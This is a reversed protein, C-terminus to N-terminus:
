FEANKCEPYNSCGLFKRTNKTKKDIYSREIMYGKNCKLCKMGDYNYDSTIKDLKTYFTKLYGKFDSIQGTAILDLDKEMNKTFDLNIVDIFNKVLFDNVKLGLDNVTMSESKNKEVDVYGRLVNIEIANKYTSPRGIELKQLQEILTIENLKSPPKDYDEVIKINNVNIFSNKSYNFKINEEVNLSEDIEYYGLVNYSKITTYFLNKRNELFIEKRIGSPKQYISNITNQWILWYLLKENKSLSETCYKEIEGPLWEFHTPTIAPHGEQDTEKIQTKILKGLKNEGYYSIIFNILSNKTEKDLNNSDTRIYTILGKEYLSQAINTTVNAKLKLKSKSAKLMDATSFPKYHNEEFKTEKIDQILFKIDLNNKLELIKSKDYIKNIVLKNHENYICNKFILQDIVEDQLYFYQKKSFNDIENQRDCLIRLVASQVRGASAAGITKQLVPSIRFGVIRDIIQRTLASKVYNQDISGLNLIEKQVCEKTIANLKMRKFNQNYPKLLQYLHWAIAEGERDPDTAIIIQEAKKSYEILQNVITKKDLSVKFIPEMSNLKLGMNYENEQSLERVHGVSAKVIYNNNKDIENLFQNVKKIKGPSELIVLKTM